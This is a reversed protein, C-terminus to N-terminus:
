MHGNRVFSSNRIEFYTRVTRGSQPYFETNILLGTHLHRLQAVLNEIVVYSVVMGAGNTFLATKVTQIIQSSLLKVKNIKQQPNPNRHVYILADEVCQGVGNNSLHTEQITLLYGPSKEASIFIGTSKGQKFSSKIITLFTPQVAYIGAFQKFNLCLLVPLPQMIYKTLHLLELVCNVRTRM